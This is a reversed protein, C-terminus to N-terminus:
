DVCPNYGLIDYIYDEIRAAEILIPNKYDDLNRVNSSISIYIYFLLGALKRDIMVDKCIIRKIEELSDYLERFLNKDIEKNCRLQLLIPLSITKLYDYIESLRQKNM